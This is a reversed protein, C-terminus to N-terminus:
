HAEVLIHCEKCQPEHFWELLHHGEHSNLGVVNDSADRVHFLDNEPEYSATKIKAITPMNPHITIMELLTFSTEFKFPLSTMVEDVMLNIMIDEDLLVDFSARGDLDNMSIM